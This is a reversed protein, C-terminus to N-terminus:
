KLIIETGAVLGTAAPCEVTVANGDVTKVACAIAESPSAKVAVRVPQGASYSTGPNPTFQATLTTTGTISAIVQEDKVIKAAKAVQTKVTGALPAKVAFPELQTSISALKGELTSRAALLKDLQEQRIKILDAKGGM